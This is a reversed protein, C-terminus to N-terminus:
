AGEEIMLTIHCKFLAELQLTAKKIADGPTSAKIQIEQPLITDTRLAVLVVWSPGDKRLRAKVIVAPIPNHDDM